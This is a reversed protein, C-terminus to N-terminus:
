DRDLRTLLRLLQRGGEDAGHACLQEVDAALQRQAAAHDVWAGEVLLLWRAPTAGVPVDRYASTRDRM